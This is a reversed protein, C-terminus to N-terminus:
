GGPGLLRLMRQHRARFTAELERRLLTRDLRDGLLSAFRIAAFNEGRLCFDIVEAPSPALHVERVVSVTRVPLRTPDAGSLLGRGALALAGATDAPGVEDGAAHM